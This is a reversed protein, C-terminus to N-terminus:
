SASQASYLVRLLAAEVQSVLDSENEKVGGQFIISEVMKGLNITISTNRTGGSAVKETNVPPPQGGPPTPAIGPTTANAIGAKQKTKETSEPTILDMGKRMDAILKEGGGALKSMGPIKALLGLLQQVPYLITDLLVVGIRKLGGAIGGDTFAAKISEWNNKLAMIMNVVMGLPGLLFLVAAGWTDYANICSYIVGILLLVGAVILGIPNANMAANLLWQAGTWVATAGSVIATSIAAWSAVIAYGAIAATIAWVIHNGNTLETFLWSLTDVVPSLIFLLGSVAPVLIASIVGGFGIGLKQIQAWLLSMNQMPNTSLGFATATEGQANAVDGLVEKLKAGDSALIMFAQKAQADKLGISELFNSKAKDNTGFAALKKQLQGFIVDMKQMSGDANFIDVGAGELGKTIESKGLATFANEMLTASREASQGKGTMFAFLGATDKFGLGLAKGSAVLGPIYNAFDKFEGAGVRKAAFMTDLVEQANTNEKGVLSLTQALAAAVVSSDTFGAKAGQLSAKMIDTSLAVDGTQSLIKEFADPIKTLDAGTKTGMDMLENKLLKLAEPTMQATTNIKAMAEDFSMAMKGSAFLAAGAAVIPNTVFDAGPISSFATKLKSGLGTVSTQARTALEDTRSLARNAIDVGNMQANLKLIYEYITAM